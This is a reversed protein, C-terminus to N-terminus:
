FKMMKNLEEIRKKIEEKEEQSETRTQKQIERLVETQRFIFDNTDRIKNIFEQQRSTINQLESIIKQQQAIKSIKIDKSDGKSALVAILIILLIIILIGGIEMYRIHKLIEILAATETM